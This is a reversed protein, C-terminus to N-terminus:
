IRMGPKKDHMIDNLEMRVFSCEIATQNQFVIESYLLSLEALQAVQCGHTCSLLSRTVIQLNTTAYAHLIFLRFCAITCIQRALLYGVFLIM